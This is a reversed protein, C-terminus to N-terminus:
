VVAFSVMGLMSLLALITAATGALAIAIALLGAITGLTSRNPGGLCEVVMIWTAVWLIVVFAVMGFIALIDNGTSILERSVNVAYM